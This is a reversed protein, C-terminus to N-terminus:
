SFLRRSLGLGAAGALTVVAALSGAGTRATVAVPTIPRPTVVAAKVQPAVVPDKVCEIDTNTEATDKVGHALDEATAVSKINKGCLNTNKKVTAKIEYTRSQKPELTIDGESFTTGKLVKDNVTIKEFVNPLSNTVLIKNLEQEGTNTGKLIYKVKNGPRTIAHSVKSDIDINAEGKKPQEPAPAPAVCAAPEIDFNVPNGLTN